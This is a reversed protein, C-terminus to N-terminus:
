SIYGAVYFDAGITINSQNNMRFVGWAGTGTKSPKSTETDGSGTLLGFRQGGYIHPTATVTPISTFTVPFTQNPIADDKIYMGNWATSINVTKSYTGWLECFGSSWKCVKWIGSTYRSIVYDSFTKGNVTLSKVAMAGSFEGQTGTIKKATLNGDISVPVNFRFDNEGWDFVPVGKNVRYVATKGETYIKDYATVEVDNVATYSVGSVNGSATYTNGVPSATIETYDGYSGGDPKVRVKVTLTNAVAGFSGSFFNGTASVSVVDSGASERQVTPNLTLPIYNVMSLGALQIATTLGRSDTVSVTVASSEVANLTVDAGIASIGGCTVRVSAVSAGNKATATTQVRLNSVGKILTTAAGTLATAKANVDQATASAEPANTSERVSATLYTESTGMSTLGNFTECRIYIKIERSNPILQYAAEPVTWGYQTAATKSVIETYTSQGYYRYSLTSTYANNSKNIVITSAAGIYADTATVTSKRAIAPLTATVSVTGSANKAPTYTTGTVTFTWKGYLPINKAYGDTCDVYVTGEDIVTGKKYSYGGESFASLEWAASPENTGSFASAGNITGTYTTGYQYFESNITCALVMKTSVTHYGTVTNPTSKGYLLIYFGYNGSQPAIKASRGLYQYTSTLEM